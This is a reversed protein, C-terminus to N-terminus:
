ENELKWVKEVDSVNPSANRPSRTPNSSITSQRNKITTLTRKCMCSKFKNFCINVCKNVCKLKEISFKKTFFCRVATCKKVQNSSIISRPNVQVEQIYTYDFDSLTIVKSWVLFSLM